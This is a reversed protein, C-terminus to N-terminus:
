ATWGVDDACIVMDQPVGNLQARHGAAVYMGNSALVVKDLAMNGSIMAIGANGFTSDVAGNAEYRILLSQPPMPNQRFAMGVLIKGDPLVLVGRPQCEIRDAIDTEVWGDTDFSTDQQGTPMLRKLRLRCGQPTFINTATASIIRDQADIALGWNNWFSGAPLQEVVSGNTGFTPLLMGNPGIGYINQTFGLAGLVYYNGTSSRVAAAIIPNMNKLLSVGAVGFTPDLAGDPMQRTMMLAQPVSSPGAAVIKGDPEVIMQSASEAAAGSGYSLVGNMGYAADVLGGAMVRVAQIRQNDGTIERSVALLSGDPFVEQQLAQWFALKAFGADGYSTDLQGTTLFRMAVAQNNLYGTALPRGMPDLSLRYVTNLFDPISIRTVGANGFTPDPVGAANIRAMIADSSGSLNEFGGIYVAGNGAPVMAQLTDIPTTVEGTAGFSTDRAGNALFRAVSGVSSGFTRALLWIKGDSQVAADDYGFFPVNTVLQVGATGFTPDLSGNALIKILVKPLAPDTTTTYVVMSGGPGFAAVITGILLNTPQTIGGNGFTADLTGNSQYRAVFLRRGPLDDIMGVVMIRGQADVSVANFETHLPGLPAIVRGGDGFSSDISGNPNVRVLLAEGAEGLQASTTGALLVKGDAQHATARMTDNNTGPPHILTMGNSGFTPDLLPNLPWGAGSGGIGGAGGNGGMAIGGSGGNGGTAGNGGITGGNGGTESGGQGSSTSTSASSSTSGQGKPNESSCHLSLLATFAIPFAKFVAPTRTM